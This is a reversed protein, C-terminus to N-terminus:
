GLLVRLPFGVDEAETIRTIGDTIDTAREGAYGHQDASMTIGFGRPGEVLFKFARLAEDTRADAPIHDVFDVRLDRQPFVDEALGAIGRKCLDVRRERRSLGDNHTHIIRGRGFQLPMIHQDIGAFAVVVEHEVGPGILGAGGFLVQEHRAVALAVRELTRDLLHQDIM